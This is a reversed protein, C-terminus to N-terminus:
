YGGSSAGGSVAKGQTQQVIKLGVSAGIRSAGAMVMSKADAASRVGGSAKVGLKGEVARHMLAVDEATAGAKSFGTSTKVFDARARKALICATIKEEDTLLATEIIVKLIAGGEHAAERVLRIDDFVTQHDGSKLAGINIVMDIEKAGDRLAQRCELAKVQKPTAGLPFGIVTCVLSRAGSLNKAARKVHYPNVCVSAFGYEAAEKCLQDIQDYTADAKLLTHDILLAVDKPMRPTGLSSSVRAGRTGNNLSRVSDPAQSACNGHCTNCTTCVFGPAGGVLKQILEPNSALVRQIQDVLNNGTMSSTVGLTGGDIADIIAVRRQHRPVTCETAVFTDAIACAESESLYGAGLTLVHADNHERANRATAVNFAMGARVGKVKNAAMCSGIGAGDIVIARWAAGSAVAEAAKRAFVPYDCSETNHTGVDIIEYRGSLHRKLAEKLAYGGHDAGLAVRQM